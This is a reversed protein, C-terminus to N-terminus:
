GHNRGTRESRAADLEPEATAKARAAARAAAGKSRTATNTTISGVYCVTFVVLGHELFYLAIACACM